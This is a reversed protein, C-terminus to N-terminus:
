SLLFRNTCIKRHCISSKTMPYKVNFYDSFFDLITAAEMMGFEGEGNKIAEPRAAVEIDIGYKPSKTKIMDFNSVAYAVLYTSM